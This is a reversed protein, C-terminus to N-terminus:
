EGADSPEQQSSLDGNLFAVLTYLPQGADEEALAVDIEVRYFDPVETPQSELWWFWERGAMDSSGNERGQSLSQRARSVIRFETLKNAAVMRAISKDRLYATADVQRSLAVLLAPLALAVIALAVMVEVLTFGGPAGRRGRNM